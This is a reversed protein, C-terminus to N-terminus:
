DVELVEGDAVRLDGLGRDDAQRVRFPVFPREQDDYHFFASRRRPVANEGEHVALDGLPPHGVIDSEDVLDGVGRGALDLFRSQAFLECM